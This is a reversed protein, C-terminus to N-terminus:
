VIIDCSGGTLAPIISDFVTTKVVVKLGLRTAIEAALDLDSGVPKSTADMYEQPPYSTDSCVTLTGAAILQAAPVTPLPAATPAVSAATTTAASAATTPAATPTASPATTAASSSCASAVLAAIALVSAIRIRSHTVPKRRAEQFELAARRGGRRAGQYRYDSRLALLSLRCPTRTM